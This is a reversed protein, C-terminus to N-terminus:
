RVTITFSSIRARADLVSVRWTGAMSFDVNSASYMGAGSTRLVYRKAPMQMDPMEIEVTALPDRASEVDITNTEGAIGPSVTIPSTHAASACGAFAFAVILAPLWRYRRM